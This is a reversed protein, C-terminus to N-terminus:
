ACGGNDQAQKTPCHPKLASKEEIGRKLVTTGPVRTKERENVQRVLCPDDPAM